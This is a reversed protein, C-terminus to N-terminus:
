TAFSRQLQRADRTASTPKEKGSPRGSCPGRGTCDGTSGQLAPPATRRPPPKPWTCTETPPAAPSALLEPAAGPMRFLVSTKAKKVALDVSGLWSDDLRM